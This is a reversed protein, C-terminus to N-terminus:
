TVEMMMTRVQQVKRHMATQEQVMQQLIVLYAQGMRQHLNKILSKRCSSIM